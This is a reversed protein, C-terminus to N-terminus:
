EIKFRLIIFFFVEVLTSKLLNFISSFPLLVVTAKEEDDLPEITLDDDKSDRDYGSDPDVFTGDESM